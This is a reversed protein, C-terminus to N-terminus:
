DSALLKLCLEDIKDARFAIGTKVGLGKLAKLKVVIEDIGKYPKYNDGKLLFDLTERINKSQLHEGVTASLISLVHELKSTDPKERLEDMCKKYEPHAIKDIMPMLGFKPPNYRNVMTSILQM